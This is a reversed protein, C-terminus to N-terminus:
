EILDRAEVSVKDWLSGNFYPKASLSSIKDEVNTVGFPFHGSFLNYMVVGLSFMDCPPAYSEPEGNKKFIEPAMYLPTGIIRNKTEKKEGKALGFDIIKLEGTM